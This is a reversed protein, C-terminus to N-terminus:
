SSPFNYALWHV